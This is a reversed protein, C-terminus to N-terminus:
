DQDVQQRRRRRPAGEAGTQASTEPAQPMVPAQPMAPAQPAIPAQPRRPTQPAVPAKPAAPRTPAAPRVPVQPAAPAKPAQPRAYPSRPADEEDAQRMYSPVQASRAARPAAQQANRASQASRQRQRALQEQRMEYEEDEDEEDEDEDEETRRRYVYVGYIGAAVLILVGGIIFPLIGMGNDEQVPVATPLPMPTPIPTAGNDYTVGYQAFAGEATAFEVIYEGPDPLTVDMEFLGNEDAVAQGVTKKVRQVNEAIATSIFNMGFTAPLQPAAEVEVEVTATVTSYAKTRGYVSFTAEKTLAPINSVTLEGSSRILAAPNAVPVPTPTANPDPTSTTYGPMGSIVNNTWSDPVPILDQLPSGNIVIDTNNGSNPTVSVGPKSANQSQELQQALHDQLESITLMQAMDSRVYGDKGNYNVQYWTNTGDYETGTVLLLTNMPIRGLSTGSQSPTRRLNVADKILKAYASTSDPGVPEPTVQPMPTPTALEAELQALYDATEQEGMVRVLDARVFGWQGSYQVLYWTMGDAAVQSQFLFVVTEKDLINQLYANPDPNGRLPTGDNIVRAYLELRQPQPTTTPEPTATPELTPTPTAKAAELAALYADQQEMTMLQVQSEKVYGWMEDVQVLMWVTGDETAQSHVVYVVTDADLMAQMHANDDANSRLATNGSTLYAYAGIEKPTTDVPEQPQPTPTPTTEPVILEPYNPDTEEPKASEPAVEPDDLSDRYEQEERVDMLEVFKAMMYGEGKDTRVMCWEGDMEMVWVITGSEMRYILKGNTNPKERLAVQKGTNRGYHYVDGEELAQPVDPEVPEPTVEPEEDKPPEEEDEPETQGSQQQDNQSPVPPIVSVIEKIAAEATEKTVEAVKYAEIYGSENNNMNRVLYWGNGSADMEAGSIELPSPERIVPIAGDQPLDGGASKRLVIMAGNAQELTMGYAPFSSIMGEALQAGGAAGTQPDDQDEGDDDEDPDTEPVILEPYNDNGADNNDASDQVTNKNALIAALRNEADTQAIQTLLYDRMYGQANDEVITVPYWKGDQEPEGFIVLVDNPYEGIKDGDPADRLTNVNGNHNNTVAYSVAPVADEGGTMGEDVNEDESDEDTEDEDGTEDEVPPVIEEVLPPEQQAQQQAYAKEADIKSIISMVYDPSVESVYSAMICGAYGTRYDQAQWWLNGEADQAYGYVALLDGVGIQAIVNNDTIMPESRLNTADQMPMVYAPVIIDGMQQGAADDLDMGGEAVAGSPPVIEEVLPQEGSVGEDGTEGGNNEDIEETGENNTEEGSVEDSPEQAAAMEANISEIIAPVAEPAIEAVVDAMIYGAANSRYDQVQWWLNGEMDQSYGYVALVDTVGVQVIVNDGSASTESRLNTMDQMPVVYAPVSFENEQQGDEDDLDMDAMPNNVAVQEAAAQAAAEAAAQEAAAQAAAEAAAQEAAAQAAAEAAAQEAAAQAAAEAAAEAAAQEAAAQAAAEAAAQEAAAQAAAEAAAQEAAAQAAAEAAAQEAAAQAAAEAAAQEAAAQAAAEAAAQEAAAQAAAEAAAQEAATQAAAEDIAQQVYGSIVTEADQPLEPMAMPAFVIEASLMPDAADYLEFIGETKMGAESDAESGALSYTGIVMGTPDTVTLQGMSLAAFQEPTLLSIDLWYVTEGTSTTVMQVPLQQVSGDEMTIVVQALPLLPEGEAFVGVPTLLLAAGLAAAALRRIITKKM